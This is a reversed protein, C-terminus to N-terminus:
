TGSIPLTNRSERATARNKRLRIIGPTTILSRDPRRTRAAPSSGRDHCRIKLLQRRLLQRDKAPQTKGAAIQAADVRNFVHM